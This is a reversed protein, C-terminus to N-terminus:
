LNRLIAFGRDVEVQTDKLLQIFDRRSHDDDSLTEATAEITSYNQSLTTLIGRIEGLSNKIHNLEAEHEAVHAMAAPAAAAVDLAGAGILFANVEATFGM